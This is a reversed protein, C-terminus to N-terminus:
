DRIRQFLANKIDVLCGDGACGERGSLSFIMSPTWLVSVNCCKCVCVSVAWVVGSRQELVHKKLSVVRNMNLKVASIVTCISHYLTMMQRIQEGDSWLIWFSRYEFIKLKWICYILLWCIVDNPPNLFFFVYCGIHMMKLKCNFINLM